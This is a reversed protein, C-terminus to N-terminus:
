ARTNQKSQQFWPKNSTYEKIGDKVQDELMGLWMMFSAEDKEACANACYEEWDVATVYGSGNELFNNQMDTLTTGSFLKLLEQKQVIERGPKTLAKLISQYMADVQDQYQAPISASSTCAGMSLRFGNLTVRCGRVRRQYRDRICM